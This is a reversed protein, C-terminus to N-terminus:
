QENQTSHGKSPISNINVFKLLKNNTPAFFVVQFLGIDGRMRDGKYLKEDYTGSANPSLRDRLIAAYKVGEKSEFDSLRLDSSQSNPSETRIHVLDPTNGEISINLYSKVINGADNHAFCLVSDYARGYFTNKSTKGHLYPYGAFFTCLRNGVMSFWEPRFSYRSTWRDIDPKFCWVGGQGDYADHYSYQLRNLTITDTIETASQVIFTTTNNAVFFNFVGGFVKRNSYYIDVAGPCTIEYLADPIVNITLTTAYAM